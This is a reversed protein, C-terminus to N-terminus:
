LAVPRTMEIDEYFILDWQRMERMFAVPDIAAEPAYVGGGDCILEGRGAMLTGVVLPLATTDRMLGIGYLSRQVQEAGDEGWVDIRMAGPSHEKGSALNEISELVGSFFRNRRPGDYLGMRAALTVLSTGLGFGMIFDVRDLSSFYRPLTVPESHGMNWTMIDGFRPFSIKEKESCSKVMFRQGDRWTAVQGSMIYLGHEIAARGGGMDIPLYIAMRVRRPKDMRGALLSMAMNTLGPSAGLGTVIKVGASRAKEHYREIVLEAPQWEDCISCYDVGTEIAAQVFKEEFIFFPGLAGAAVDYGQMARHLQEQDNADLELVDVTARGKLEEALKEAVRVNRDAITVREVDAAKALEEVARSGM